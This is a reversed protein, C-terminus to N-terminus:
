KMGTMTRLRENAKIWEGKKGKPKWCLIESFNYSTGSNTLTTIFFYFFFYFIHINSVSWKWQGQATRTEFCSNANELTNKKRKWRERESSDCNCFKLKTKWKLPKLRKCRDDTNWKGATFVRNKNRRKKKWNLMLNRKYGTSLAWFTEYM